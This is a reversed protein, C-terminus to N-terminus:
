GPFRYYDLWKEISAQKFFLTSSLYGIITGLVTSVPM